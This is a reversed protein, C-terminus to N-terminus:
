TATPEDASAPGSDPARWHGRITQVARGTAALERLREYVWTRGRGTAMVLEGISVGEPGAQRLATLLVAHPDDTASQSMQKVSPGGAVTEPRQSPGPPAPVWLSPRRPAYQTVHRSITQDDILYARAREPTNHEPSSILFTGPQTLAHAHWGTNFMGQGLILDVDRRERVRLCIRVDMQSRVSNGGMASQTPRQTAAVINVALARGRRALSDAYEHAQEPMEAYEDAVVILAPSQATPEWLRSGRKTLTVARYDLERVADRLLETAQAPTTALRDLCPAWPDLEMGGKLDVGWVVVDLCTTLIALVVNVIGSKGSGLIGGILANRRLLSVRAIRGDEFLGIDLPRRISDINPGAWTILEAHPDREIVRLIFRDAKAEDPMARASGPRLGFGSEIAPIRDIAQNATIGKRLIIRATWGWTDVLVSSIYAGKLGVAEAIKPWAEITREVRVRARRRRHIWWPLSLNVFLVLAITPLPSVSPGVAVAASSWGGTAAVLLAAYGREQPRDIGYFHWMKIILEAFIRASGPEQLKEYPIGLLIAVTSSIVAITAWDFNHHHAFTAAVYVIGGFIFPVFTSRHRFLFRLLAALAVLIIPEDPSVVM